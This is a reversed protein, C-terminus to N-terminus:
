QKVRRLKQFREGGVEAVYLSGDRGVALMHPLEFQGPAHGPGGLRQKVTGDAGLRLIRVARADAVFVQQASDIAIGYPAFGNWVDLLKGGLDFVQIRDNERDGVLVRQQADIVIAHPLHFQGPQNGPTGWAALFKGQRNFKVVRSNGYGDAVYVNGEPGFAVDAPKNFQHSETGPSDLTGLTLLLKGEPSFKFVVHRAIDTAWINGDGDVRLGHAMGVLDDGWSRVFEGEATFRLIPQRGRHYLYLEGQSGLAVASCRGLEVDDPLNLFDPVPEYGAAALSLLTQEPATRSSFTVRGFTDPTHFAPKETTGPSWQSHQPNTEGGLRNLNLHWVDGDAPHPKGTVDAFNAFPIAVELVWGRDTDTDDNQTGDVSTAIVIGSANWNPVQPKGPGEPHHRDLIAGNVNMEINFYDVPRRPNPAVFVEVCDDLYVKSDQETRTASIHGDTCQFAVYVFRDDWLMRAVTQEKKGAKWWPFQFDGFTPANRWATEDLRGDITINAEARHATYRPPEAAPCAGALGALWLTLIFIQMDQIPM